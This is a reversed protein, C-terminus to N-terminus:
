PKTGGDCVYKEGPTTTKSCPICHTTGRMNHPVGDRYTGARHQVGPAVPVVRKGEKTEEIVQATCPVQDETLVDNGAGTTVAVEAPANSPTSLMSELKDCGTLGILFLCATLFRIM